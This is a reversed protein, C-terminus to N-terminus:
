IGTNNFILWFFRRETGIYCEGKAANLDGKEKNLYEQRVITGSRRRVYGCKYDEFDFNCCIEFENEISEGNNSEKYYSDVDNFQSEDLCIFRQSKSLDRLNNLFTYIDKTEGLYNLLNLYRIQLLDRLFYSLNLFLWM